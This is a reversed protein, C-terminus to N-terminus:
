LSFDDIELGTYGRLLIEMDALSDGDAQVISNSGYVSFRLEGATSTFGSTGLWSFAANGQAAGNADINSLAIRDSTEFDFITDRNTPGAPSDTVRNYVLVDAGAGGYLDDAGAGGRIYDIGDGGQLTNDLGNGVLTNALANGTGNVAGGM